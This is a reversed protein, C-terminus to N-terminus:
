RDGAFEESGQRAAGNSSGHIKLGDRSTFQIPKMPAPQETKLWPAVEALKTLSDSKRDFLYRSGPTRDNTAVVIFKEEAKDSDSVDIEFGPLKAELSRRTFNRRRPISFNGNGRGVHRLGSADFSKPKKSYGLNDVDVEPHEFLLGTEKGDELAM